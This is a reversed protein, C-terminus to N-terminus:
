LESRVRLHAMARGAGEEREELVRPLAKSGEEIATKKQALASNYLEQHLLRLRELKAEQTQNPYLKYTVRRQVLQPM